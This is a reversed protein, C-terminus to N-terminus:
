RIRVLTHSILGTRTRLRVFYVGPRVEQGGDDTGDWRLRYTGAPRAGSTLTRVRRGEVSYIALEATGEAALSFGLAVDRHFPNPSATAFENRSPVLSGGTSGLVRHMQRDRADLDGVMVAPDGTSKARFNVTALAGDGLLGPHEAGPVIAIVYGPEPMVVIADQRRGLDDTTLTVPDAVSRDWQLKAAIGHMDGIGKMRVRVAFTEGATVHARSELSVEDHDAPDPLAPQGAFPGHGYGLSFGYIFLEQAEIRQDRLSRGEEPRTVGDVGPKATTPAFDLCSRAPDGLSIPCTTCFNNLVATLDVDVRNDGNCFPGIPSDTVDSGYYNLTGDDGSRVDAGAYPLVAVPSGCADVRVIAYYWYGRGPFDTTVDHFITPTPSVSALKVWPGTGGSPPYLLAITPTPPAAGQYDPYGSLFASSGTGTFPARWIDYTSQPLSPDAPNTWSVDLGFYQPITPPPPGTAFDFPRRVKLATPAAPAVPLIPITTASGPACRFATLPNNSCDRLVLRTVAVTGSTPSVGSKALYITFLRGAGSTNTSCSGSGPAVPDLIAEDITYTGDPNQFAQSSTARAGSPGQLFGNTTTVASGPLAGSASPAPCPTLNTLKLTVSYGRVASGGPTVGSLSVDIGICPTAPSLTCAAPHPQTSACATAGALTNTFLTLGPAQLNAVFLDPKGDGTVDALGIGLPGGGATLSAPSWTGCPSGAPATNGFCGLGNGRFIRVGDNAGHADDVVTIDAYGDGNVDGVIVGQPSLGVGPIDLRFGPGCGASCPSTGLAGSGDGFLVSIVPVGGVGGNNSVVVDPNLDGNLDAVAAAVPNAGVTYPTVGAAFPDSSSGGNILTFLQSGNNAGVVLDLRGDRNLDAVVISNPNSGSVAGTITYSRFPFAGFSTGNGDGFFVAVSNALYNATVFDLKSDGNVDGVAVQVPMAAPGSPFPINFSNQTFSLPGTTTLNNKFVTASSAQRNVVVLDPSGNADFDGVALHVPQCTTNGPVPFLIQPSGAAPTAFVPGLLITVTGAAPNAVAIDMNGDLNFDAAVPMSGGVGTLLPMGAAPFQPGPGPAPAQARAPAVVGMIWLAAPLITYLTSLQRANM